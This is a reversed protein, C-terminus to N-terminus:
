PYKVQLIPPLAPRLTVNEMKGGNEEQDDTVTLNAETKM